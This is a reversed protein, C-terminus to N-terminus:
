YICYNDNSTPYMLVCVVVVVIVTFSDSLFMKIRIYLVSFIQPPVLLLVSILTYHESRESQCVFFINIGCFCVLVVRYSLSDWTCVAFVFHLFDFVRTVFHNTSRFFPFQVFSIRDVIWTTTLVLHIAICAITSCFRLPKTCLSPIRYHAHFLTSSHSNSDYNLRFLCEMENM